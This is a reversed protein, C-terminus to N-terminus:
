VTSSRTLTNYADTIDFWLSLGDETEILDLHKDDKHLLSQKRLKKELFKLVDREDEVRLVLYPAQESGDGTAVIGRACANAFFTEVEMRQIEEHKRALVALLLHARPSLLLNPFANKLLQQARDFESQFLATEIESLDKSYPAYSTHDRVLGRIALFNEKNPDQLFTTLEQKM